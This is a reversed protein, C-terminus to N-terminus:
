HTYNQTLLNDQTSLKLMLIELSGRILQGMLDDSSHGYQLVTLLHSIGQKTYMDTLNLGYYKNPSHLIARPFSQNYGAATIGDTLCPKM